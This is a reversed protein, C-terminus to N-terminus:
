LPATLSCTDEYCSGHFAQTYLSSHSRPQDVSSTMKESAHVVLLCSVKPGNTWRNNVEDRYWKHYVIGKSRVMNLCVDRIYCSTQSLNWLSMSDLFSCVVMLVEAPFQDLWIIDVTRGEAIDLDQSGLEASSNSVHAGIAPHTRVLESSLDPTKLLFHKCTHHYEIESGPPNPVLRTEGHICGYSHMPCREVIRCMDLEVDLHLSKWHISFEDRRVVENCPFTYCFRSRPKTGPCRKVAYHRFQMPIKLCLKERPRLSATNYETTAAVTSHTLMGLTCHISVDSDSQPRNPDSPISERFTGASSVGYELDGYSFEGSCRLAHDSQAIGLDGRLFQEDLLCPLPEESTPKEHSSTGSSQYTTMRDHSFKCMVVSAPCHELHRVMHKRRLLTECGHQANICPVRSEPCTHEAHEAVKCRHLSAGCGNQCPEVTCTTDDRQKCSALICTECHWHSHTSMGELERALSPSQARAYVGCNVHVTGAPGAQSRSLDYEMACAYERTVHGLDVM